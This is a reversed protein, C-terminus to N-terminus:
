SDGAPTQSQALNLLGLCMDATATVLEILAAQDDDLHDDLSIIEDTAGRGQHANALELLHNKREEVLKRKENMTRAVDLIAFGGGILPVQAFVKPLILPAYQGVATTIAGYVAQIAGAQLDIHKAADSERFYDTAELYTMLYTNRTQIYGAIAQYTAAVQVGALFGCQAMTNLYDTAKALDEQINSIKKDAPNLAEPATAEKIANLDGSELANRVQSLVAFIDEIDTVATRNTRLAKIQKITVLMLETLAFDMAVSVQFLLPTFQGTYPVWRELEAKVQQALDILSKAHDFKPLSYFELRAQAKTVLVPGDKEFAAITQSCTSYARDLLGQAEQLAAVCEEYTMRRDTTEQQGDAERASGGTYEAPFPLEPSPTSDTM